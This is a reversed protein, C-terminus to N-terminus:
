LSPSYGLRGLNQRLTLDQGEVCADVFFLQFQEFNVQGSGNIDYKQLFKTVRQDQLSVVEGTCARTFEICNLSGDQSFRDFIEKVVQKARYTLVQHEDKDEVM